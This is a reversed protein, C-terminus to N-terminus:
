KMRRFIEGNDRGERRLCSIADHNEPQSAAQTDRPYPQISLLKIFTEGASTSVELFLRNSKALRTKDLIRNLLRLHM